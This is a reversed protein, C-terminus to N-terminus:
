MTIKEVMIQDGVSQKLGINRATDRGNYYTFRYVEINQCGGM